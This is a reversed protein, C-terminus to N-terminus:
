ATSFDSQQLAVCPSWCRRQVGEGSAPLTKTVGSLRSFPIRRLRGGCWNFKGCEQELLEHMRRSSSSQQRAGLPVALKIHGRMNAVGDRLMGSSHLRRDHYCHTFLRKPVANPWAQPIGVNQLVGIGMVNTMDVRTRLIQILITGLIKNLM